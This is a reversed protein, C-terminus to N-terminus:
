YSCAHARGTVHQLRGLIPIRSPYLLFIDDRGPHLISSSSSATSLLRLVLYSTAITSATRFLLTSRSPIRHLTAPLFTPVNKVQCATGVHRTSNAIILGYKFENSFGRKDKRRRRRRGRRVRKTPYPPAAPMRKRRRREISSSIHYYLGM